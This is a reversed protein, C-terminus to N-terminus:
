SVTQFFKVNRKAGAVGLSTLISIAEAKKSACIGALTDPILEDGSTFTLLAIGFGYEDDKVHFFSLTTDKHKMPRRRNWYALGVNKDLRRLRLQRTLELPGIGIWLTITHPAPPPLCLSDPNM